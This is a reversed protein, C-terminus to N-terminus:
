TFLQFPVCRPASMRVDVRKSYHVLPEGESPPLGCAPILGPDCHLLRARELPWPEHEIQARYLRRGITCYFSWRATLFRELDSLEPLRIEEGMEIAIKAEARRPGPWRRATTYTAVQGVKSFGLKSWFYNLGYTMRAILVAGLRAADLTIFWVGPHGDPGRVYTRVNMEEFSSVWPVRPLGPPRITVHFPVLGIWASGEFEDVTVCDPLVSQVAGPPAPWHLFGLDTWAHLMVPRHVSVPAMVPYPDRDRGIDQDIQSKLM